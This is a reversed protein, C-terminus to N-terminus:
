RDPRSCAGGKAIAVKTLDGRTKYLSFLTAIAEDRQPLEPDAKPGRRRPPKREGVMIEWLIEFEERTLKVDDRHRGRSLKQILAKM